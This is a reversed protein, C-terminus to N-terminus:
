RTFLMIDQQILKLHYGYEQAIFRATNDSYFCIHTPDHIYRWTAFADRSKVRQTMVVLCGDSKLMTHWLAWTNKAEYIHEITETSVIFDHEQELNDTYAAFFKDYVNMTFGLEYLQVALAPAKGCGFDIGTINSTPQRYKPTIATNAHKETVNKLWAESIPQAVKFHAAIHPVVKNLFRMYGLDGIQNTHLDYENREIQPEVHFKEPVWVLECDNCQYYDRQLPKSSQHFLHSRPSSCLPCLMIINEEPWSFLHYRIIVKTFKSSM